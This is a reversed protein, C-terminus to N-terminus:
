RKQKNQGASSWLVYPFRCYKRRFGPDFLAHRIKRTFSDIQSPNAVKEDRSYTDVPPVISSRM